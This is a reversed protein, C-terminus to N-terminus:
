LSGSSARSSQAARSIIERKLYWLAKRLDVLPTGKKEARLIYKVANGLRFGLDYHEIIKIVELPNDKGGYHKPRDIEPSM